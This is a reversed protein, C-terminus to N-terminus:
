LEPSAFGLLADAATLQSLLAGHARVRPPLFAEFCGFGGSRPSEPAHPGPRRPLRRPGARSLTRLRTDRARCRSPSFSPFPTRAGPPLWAVAGGARADAFGPPHSRTCRVEPVATSFQLPALSASLRVRDRRPVFSQLSFGVPPLPMFCPRSARVHWSVASLDLSGSLPVAALRSPDSCDPSTRTVDDFPRLVEHFDSGAPSRRAAPLIHRSQLPVVGLARSSSRVM